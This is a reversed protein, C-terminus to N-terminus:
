YKYLHKSNVVGCSASFDVYIYSSNIISTARILLIKVFKIVLSKALSVNSCSGIVCTAKIKNVAVKM